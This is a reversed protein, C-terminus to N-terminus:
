TRAHATRALRRHRARFLWGVIAGALPLPSSGSVRDDIRCREDGLDVIRREHRWTLMYSMDTSSEVFSREDVDLRELGPTWRLVPVPGLSLTAVVSGGAAVLQELTHVTPTTRLRMARPLEAVIGDLSTAAAWAAAASRDVTTAFRHEFTAM